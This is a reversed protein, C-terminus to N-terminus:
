NKLEYENFEVIKGGANFDSYRAWKPRVRFYAIGPWTEREPGDPYAAFYVQKLQALEEDKPEDAFGECQVTIEDNWGVVFSINPNRRLNRCKRTNDLTDFVLELNDTIAIGVVASEPARSNSVTALVSLHQKKLFQLLDARTM